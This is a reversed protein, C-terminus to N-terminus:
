RWVLATDQQLALVIYKAQFSTWYACIGCVSMLHKLWEKLSELNGSGVVIHFNPVTTQLLVNTKWFKFTTM